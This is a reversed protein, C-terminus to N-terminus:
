GILIATVDNEKIYDKNFNSYGVLPLHAKSSDTIRVSFAKHANEEDEESPVFVQANNPIGELFYKLDGVNNIRETRKLM